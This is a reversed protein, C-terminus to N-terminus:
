SAVAREEIIRLAVAKSHLRPHDIAFRHSSMLRASAFCSQGARVPDGYSTVCHHGDTDEFLCDWAMLRALGNPRTGYGPQSDAPSAPPLAEPVPDAAVGMATCGPVKLGSTLPGEFKFTPGLLDCAGYLAGILRGLLNTLYSM